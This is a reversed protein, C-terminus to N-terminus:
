AIHYSILYTSKNDLVLFIFCFSILYSTLPSPYLSELYPVCERFDWKKWKFLLYTIAWHPTMLLCALLEVEVGTMVSWYFPQLCMTHYPLHHTDRTDDMNSHSPPAPFAWFQSRIIWWYIRKRQGQDLWFSYPMIPTSPCIDSGLCM